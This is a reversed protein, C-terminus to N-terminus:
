HGGRPMSSANGTWPSVMPVKNGALPGARFEADIYTLNGRLRVDRTAQWTAITEVGQRRTPDLNTNVFNIPDFHIEDTLHMDYYSSQIEVEGYHLRVGTEWDHSKQTRLAFDAQRTPLMGPPSMSEERRAAAAEVLATRLHVNGKRAGAGKHKGASENNGPCVGAWAAAHQASRFVGMDTGLEAVVVPTPGERTLIRGVLIAQRWKAPHQGHWLGALSHGDIRAPVPLGALTEFTPALDINSALQSIVKGAPV